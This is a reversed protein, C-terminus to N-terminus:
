YSIHQLVFDGGACPPTSQFIVTPIASLFGIPRGGCLPAHISIILAFDKIDAPFDGGACPPTSQFEVIRTDLSKKGDGGACPPTSQFLDQALHQRTRSTAGRVPPRPNFYAFIPAVDVLQPRGGCLPAHISINRYKTTTYVKHTAGRVPPRPNFYSMDCPQRLHFVDGGACPPTSQFTTAM